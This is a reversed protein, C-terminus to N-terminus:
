EKYIFKIDSEFLRKYLKYEENIKHNTMFINTFFEWLFVWGGIFIGEHIVQIFVNKSEGFFFYGITLLIISLLLDYLTKKQLNLKSIHLRELAYEYYNKYASILAAEKKTDKRSIPM